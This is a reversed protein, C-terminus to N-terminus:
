RDTAVIRKRVAEARALALEMGRAADTLSDGQPSYYGRVMLRVGPNEKLRSSLLNLLGNYRERVISSGTDFFVIPIFPERTQINSISTIRFNDPHITLSARPPGYVYASVQCRNNTEDSERVSGKTYSFDTGEDDLSLILQYQGHLSPTWWFGLATDESEGLSTIEGQFIIEPTKLSDRRAYVTVRFDYAKRTGKNQFSTTIRVPQDIIMTEPLQLAPALPKLDALLTKQQPRWLLAFRHSKFTSLYPTTPILLAYDFELDLPAKIRISGGLTYTPRSKGLEKLSKGYGSEVGGRLAFLHDMFWNELGLHLRMKEETSVPDSRLTLAAVVNLNERYHFAVGPKLFLPLRNQGGGERSVDPQNLNQGALGLSFGRFKYILGANLVTAMIAAPGKLLPDDPDILELESKIIEDRLLDLTIGLYLGVGPKSGTIQRGYSLGIVTQHFVKSYFAVASIGVSGFDFHHVYGAYGENLNDDKLGWLLKTYSFTLENTAFLDLGAPNWRLANADDALPVFAEGMGVPRAGVTLYEQAGLQPVQFMLAALALFFIGLLCKTLRMVDPHNAKITNKITRM